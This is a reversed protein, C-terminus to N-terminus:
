QVASMFGTYNEDKDLRFEIIYTGKPKSGISIPYNGHDPYLIGYYRGNIYM